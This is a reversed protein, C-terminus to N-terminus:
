AGTAHRRRRGVQVIRQAEQLEAETRRVREATQAHSYGSQDCAVQNPAITSGEPDHLYIASPAQELLARYLERGQLLAHEAQKRDTIDMAFGDIITEDNDVSKSIFRDPLWIWNQGGDQDPM